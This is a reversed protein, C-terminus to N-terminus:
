KKYGWRVSTPGWVPWKICRDSELFEKLKPINKMRQHFAELNSITACCEPNLLKFVDLCEFFFMDLYSVKEGQLFSQDGLLKSMPKLMRVTGAPFGEPFQLDILPNGTAYGIYSVRLDCLYGEIMEMKAIQAPSANDPVGLYGLKRALYKLIAVSQTLKTNEDFLYPLNSFDLGMTEKVRFWPMAFNPDNLEGGFEYIKEEYDTGSCALLYQIPAYYGRLKWYGLKMTM